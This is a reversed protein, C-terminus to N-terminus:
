NEQADTLLLVKIIYVSPKDIFVTESYVGHGVSTVTCLLLEWNLLINADDNLTHTHHSTHLSSLSLRGM